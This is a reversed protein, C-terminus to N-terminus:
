LWVCVSVCVYVCQGGVWLRFLQFRFVAAPPVLLAAPSLAVLEHVLFDVSAPPVEAYEAVALRATITARGTSKGRLVIADSRWRPGGRQEEKLGIEEVLRRALTGAVADAAVPEVDVIAGQGEVEWLFPLGELSSFVNGEADYALLSVDGLQGIALRKDRTSFALRVIPAVLVQSRFARRSVHQQGEAEGEYATEESAFIWSRARRAVPQPVAEVLVRSFCSARSKSWGQASPRDLLCSTAPQSASCEPHLLSLVQPNQMAWYFCIDRGEVGNGSGELQLQARVAPFQATHAPPMWPLLVQSPGISLGEGSASPVRQQDSAGALHVAALSGMFLRMTVASLVSSSLYPIIRFDGFAPAAQTILFLLLQLHLFRCPPGCVPHKGSRRLAGM